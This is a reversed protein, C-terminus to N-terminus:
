LCSLCRYDKQTAVSSLEFAKEGCVQCVKRVLTLEPKDKSDSM